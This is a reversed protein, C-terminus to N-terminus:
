AATGLRDATRQDAPFFAKIALEDLTVDLPTGFVTTTRFFDLDGAPTALRLPVVIGALADTMGAGDRAPYASLEALLTVLVPDATVAM